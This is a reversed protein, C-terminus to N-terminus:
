LRRPDGRQSLTAEITILRAQGGASLRAASAPAGRLADICGDFLM